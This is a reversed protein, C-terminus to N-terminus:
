AHSSNRGNSTVAVTGNMWGILDNADNIDVASGGNFAVVPTLTGADIEYLFDRRSEEGLRGALITGTDNIAIASM